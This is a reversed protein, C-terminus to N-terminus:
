VDMFKRGSTTSEIHCWVLCIAIALHFSEYLHALITRVLYLHFM